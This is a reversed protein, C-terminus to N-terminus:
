PITRAPTGSGATASPHIVKRLCGHTVMHSDRSTGGRKSDMTHWHPHGVHGQESGGWRADGAGWVVCEPQLKRVMEVVEGFRYYGPPIQRKEKAGGYWGDGGNAGDFWIEFVPGYHYYVERIQEHFMEVYQDKAYHPTNRDWPSVYIGFKLGEAKCAAAFDAILDGKGKKWPSKTINHETTKTPWLCFGDHHKATLILGKMQTKSFGRLRGRMSIPPISLIPIRTAM